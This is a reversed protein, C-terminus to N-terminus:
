PRVFVPVLSSRAKSGAGKKTALPEIKFDLRIEYVVEGMIIEPQTMESAQITHKFDDRSCTYDEMLREGTLDEFGCVYIPYTTTRSCHFKKDRRITFRIRANKTPAQESYEVLYTSIDTESTKVCAEPDLRL